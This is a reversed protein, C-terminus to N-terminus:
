FYCIVIFYRYLNTKTSMLKLSELCWISYSWFFRFLVSSSIEHDNKRPGLTMVAHHKWHREVSATDRKSITLVRLSRCTPLQWSKGRMSHFVPHPRFPEASRKPGYNFCKFCSAHKHFPLDWSILRVCFCRQIDKYKTSCCADCVRVSTAHQIVHTKEIRIELPRPGASRIARLPTECSIGWAVFSDRGENTMTIVSVEWSYMLLLLVWSVWALSMPFSDKQVESTYTTKCDAGSKEPTKKGVKSTIDNSQLM